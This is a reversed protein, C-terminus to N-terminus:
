RGSTLPLYFKTKLATFITNENIQGHFQVAYHINGPHM